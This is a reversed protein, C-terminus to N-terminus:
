WSSAYRVHITARRLPEGPALGLELGVLGSAMRTRLGAGYGFEWGPSLVTRALSSSAAVGSSSPLSVSGAALPQTLDHGAADLFLYLRGGRDDTIWRQEISGSVIRSGAFARDPHGRLGESGGLFSLEEAPFTGGDLSAGSAHLSLALARRPGLRKAGVLELDGRFLGRAQEPFGPFRDRRRGAEGSATVRFGGIPNTAPLLHDIGGSAAVSWTESEGRAPGTFTSGSRSVALAARSSAAPRTGLALSWRTETFLSDAVQANLELTLDARRGFLTPERYHAAYESRGEGPGFWRLGASRGSGAINGLVLDILGTVDGERAIGVAGEFRSTREEEVPIAVRVGGPADGQTLRPDGVMVFLGSQVLRERAQTLVPPRVRTGPRLGAITAATTPRTATAGPLEISEVVAAAGAAVRLHARAPAGALAISLSDLGVEAGYYGADILVDRAASLGAAVADVSAAGHSAKAYADAAAEILGAEAPMPSEVHIIPRLSASSPTGAAVARTIEIRASGPSSGPGRLLVLRVTASADGSKALRDRIRLAASELEAGSWARGMDDANSGLEVRLSDPLDDARLAYTEGAAGGAPAGPTVPASGNTGPDDDFSSRAQSAPAWAVLALASLIACARMVIALARM